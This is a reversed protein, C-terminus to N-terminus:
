GGPRYIGFPHPQEQKPQCALLLDRVGSCRHLSRCPGRDAAPFVTEDPGPGPEKEKHRGLHLCTGMAAHRGHVSRFRRQKPGGRPHAGQVAARNREPRLAQAKGQGPRHPVQSKQHALPQVM